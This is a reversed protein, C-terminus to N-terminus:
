TLVKISVDDMLMIIFNPPRKESVANSYSISYVFVFTLVCVLGIFPKM